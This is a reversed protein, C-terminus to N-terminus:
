NLLSTYIMRRYQTFAKTGTRSKRAETSATSCLWKEETQHPPPPPVYGKKEKDSVSRDKPDPKELM